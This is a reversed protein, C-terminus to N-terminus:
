FRGSLHLGFGTSRDPGAMPAPTLMLERMKANHREVARPADAFSYIASTTGVALGTFFMLMAVPHDDCSNGWFLSCDHLAWVLSGVSMGLAGVRVGAHLLGRRTEGAYFYGFSPGVLILAAGAAPLVYHEGSAGAGIMAFGLGTGLVALGVASAKSKPHQNASSASAAPTPLEAPAQARALHPLALSVLAAVVLVSVIHPTFPNGHRGHPRSIRDHMMDQFYLLSRALAESASREGTADLEDRLAQARADRAPL